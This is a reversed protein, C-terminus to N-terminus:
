QQTTVAVNGTAATTATTMAMVMMADWQAIQSTGTATQLHMAIREVPRSVKLNLFDRKWLNFYTPFSCYEDADVEKIDEGTVIYAGM